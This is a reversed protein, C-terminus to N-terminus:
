GEDPDLIEFHGTVGKEEERGIEVDTGAAASGGNGGNGCLVDSCSSTEIVDGGDDGDGGRATGTGTGGGIADDGDGETIENEPHM